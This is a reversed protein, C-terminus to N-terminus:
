EQSLWVGFIVIIAFVSQLIPLSEGLVSWGIIEAFVPVLNIFISANSASIKSMGWNYFGFAGLTVFGGLFLLPLLLDFKFFSV